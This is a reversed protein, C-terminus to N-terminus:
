SVDPVENLYGRWRALQDQVSETLESPSHLTTMKRYGDQLDLAVLLGEVFGLIRELEVVHGKLVPVVNLRDDAM